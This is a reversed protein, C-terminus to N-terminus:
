IIGEFEYEDEFMLENETDILDETEENNYELESPSRYLVRFFVDEDFELDTYADQIWGIVELKSPKKMKGEFILYIM